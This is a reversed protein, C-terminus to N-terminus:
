SKGVESWGLGLWVGSGSKSEAKPALREVYLNEKKHKLTLNTLTWEGGYDARGLGAQTFFSGVLVGRLLILSTWPVPVFVTVHHEM